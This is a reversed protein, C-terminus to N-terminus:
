GFAKTLTKGALRIPGLHPAGINRDREDSRWICAPRPFIAVSQRQLHRTVLLSQATTARDDLQSPWHRTVAFPAVLPTFLRASM